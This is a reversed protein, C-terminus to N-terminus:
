VYTNTKFLKHFKHELRYFFPADIKGLILFVIDLIIKPIKLSFKSGRLFDKESYMKGNTINTIPEATGSICLELSICISKISSFNNERPYPSKFKIRTGPIYIRKLYDKKGEHEIMPAIRLINVKTLNSYFLEESFLKARGYFSSPRCESKVDIPFKQNKIGYVDVSSFFILPTHQNAMLVFKLFNQNITINKRGLEKTDSVHTIGAMHIILDFKIITAKKPTPEAGKTLDLQLTKACREQLSNRKLFWLENKKSEALYEVIHKGIRGSGGTILIKM